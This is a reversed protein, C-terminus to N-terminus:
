IDVSKKQFIKLKMEIEVYNLLNFIRLFIMILVHQAGSPKLTLNFSLIKKIRFELTNIEHQVNSEM